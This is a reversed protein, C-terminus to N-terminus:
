NKLCIGAITLWLVLNDVYNIHSFNRIVTHTYENLIGELQAFKRTYKVRLWLIPGFMKKAGGRTILSWADNIWIWTARDEKRHM